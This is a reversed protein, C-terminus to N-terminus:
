LGTIRIGAHKVKNRRNIAILLSVLNEILRGNRLPGADVARAGPLMAVLEAAVLRAEPDDACILVDSDIGHDLQTLLDAGLTHFAAAVRTGEPLNRAARQASSQGSSEASEPKLQVTADVVVAGPPLNASLGILTDIQSEFPLTLVIVDAGRVADTNLCGEVQTSQASEGIRGAAAQARALDRSGIRVRAGARAFRLALGTGEAGTGGVIAITM